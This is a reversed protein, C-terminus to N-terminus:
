PASPFFLSYLIIFLSYNRDPIHTQKIIFGEHGVTNTSSRTQDFAADGIDPTKGFQYQNELVNCFFLTPFSLYIM